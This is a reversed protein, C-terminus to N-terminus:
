LFKCYYNALNVIDMTDYNNQIQYILNDYDIRSKHIVSPYKYDYLIEAFLLKTFDTSLGVLRLSKITGTRRDTLIILVSLGEDEKPEDLKKLKNSLQINYPTEVWPMDAFKWLLFLVGGLRTFRVELAGPKGTCTIEKPTPDRFNLLMLAGSDTIDFFCKEDLKQSDPYAGGVKLEEFM